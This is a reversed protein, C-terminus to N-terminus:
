LIEVLRKLKQSDIKENLERIERKEEASFVVPPGAISGHLDYDLADDWKGPFFGFLSFGGEEGVDRVFHRGILIGNGHLKEGHTIGIELSDGKIYLGVSITTNNRPNIHECLHDQSFTITEIRNIKQM